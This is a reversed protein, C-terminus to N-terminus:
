KGYMMFYVKIPSALSAQYAEVARVVSVEPDYLVVVSPQVESLLSARQTAEAHTVMMLHLAPDLLRVHLRPESESDVM